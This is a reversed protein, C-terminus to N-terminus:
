GSECERSIIIKHVIEFLLYPICTNETNNSTFLFTKNNCLLTASNNLCSRERTKFIFSAFNFFFISRFIIRDSKVNESFVLYYVSAGFLCQITFVFQFGRLSLHTVERKACLGNSQILRELSVNHHLM